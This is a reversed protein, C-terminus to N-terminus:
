IRCIVGKHYALTLLLHSSNCVIDRFELNVTSIAALKEEDTPTSCVSMEKRSYLLCASLTKFDAESM